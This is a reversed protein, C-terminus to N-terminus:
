KQRSSRDRLANASLPVGTRKQSVGNSTSNAQWEILKIQQSRPQIAQKKGASLFLQALLVYWKSWHNKRNPIVVSSMVPRIVTTM